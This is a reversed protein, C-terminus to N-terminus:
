RVGRLDRTRFFGRLEDISDMLRRALLARHNNNCVYGQADKTLGRSARRVLALYLNIEGRRDGARLDELALRAVEGEVHRGAPTDIWSAFAREVRSQGPLAPQRAARYHAARCRPSCYRHEKAHHPNRPVASGCALCVVPLTRVSCPSGQPAPVARSGIWLRVAAGSADREIAIDRM